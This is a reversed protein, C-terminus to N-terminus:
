FVIKHIITDRVTCYFLIIELKTNHFGLTLREFGSKVLWFDMSSVTSNNAQYILTIFHLTKSSFVQIKLFLTLLLFMSATKKKRM